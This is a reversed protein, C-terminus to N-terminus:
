PEVEGDRPAPLEKLVPGATLMRCARQEPERCRVESFRRWSELRAQRAKRECADLLLAYLERAAVRELRQPTTGVGSRGPNQESM